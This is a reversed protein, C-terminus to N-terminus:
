IQYRSSLLNWQRQYTKVTAKELASIECKKIYLSLGYEQKSTQLITRLDDIVPNIDGSITVDDLYAVILESSFMKLLLHLTLCFDLPELSDGQQIGEDSTIKHEGFQLIHGAYSSYTFNYLEPLVPTVSELIRDRCLSNFANTFDLQIIIKKTM